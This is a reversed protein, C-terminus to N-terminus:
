ICDSHVSGCNRPPSYPVQDVDYADGDTSIFATHSSRDVAVTCSSLAAGSMALLAFLFRM